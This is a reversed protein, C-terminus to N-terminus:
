TSATLELPYIPTDKGYHLRLAWDWISFYPTPELNSGLLPGATAQGTLPDWTSGTEADRLIGDAYVFSLTRDDTSAAYTRVLRSDAEAYVVV